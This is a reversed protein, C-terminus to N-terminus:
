AVSLEKLSLRILTQLDLDVGHSAKVRMLTEYAQARAYGLNVLASLVDEDYSVPDNAPESPADQSPQPTDTQQATKGTAVPQATMAPSLAINPAKDKLETLIRAALKPGVGDAQTFAAKDQAAIAMGLKEPPCVSLIALCVKAGVGQVSCLLKFWAQEAADCFGFITMSDERVQLETLLQAAQGVGSLRSLTRRSAHVIYGVGHVDLLLHKEDIVDIIGSLKGIM